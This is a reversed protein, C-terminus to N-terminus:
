KMGAINIRNLARALKAKAVGVAREDKASSIAIEAREKAAQARALDIEDSFEFTIAAVKVGDSSVSVFGGSVSAFREGSETILRARGTSLSALFDAHGALIEVDGDDTRLLISEVEGDFCIGDPTAIELHFRRM